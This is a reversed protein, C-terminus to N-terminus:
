RLLSLFRLRMEEARLRENVDPTNRTINFRKMKELLTTRKIGLSEATLTMDYAWKEFARAIIDREHIRMYDALSLAPGIVDDESMAAELNSLAESLMKETSVLKECLTRILRRDGFSDYLGPSEM